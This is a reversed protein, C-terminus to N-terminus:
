VYKERGPMLYSINSIAFIVLYFYPTYIFIESIMMIMYVLVTVILLAAIKENKYNSLKPSNMNIFNVFVLMSIIGGDYLLQLWNNHAQWLGKVGGVYGWYVFNGDPALGHGFIPSQAIYKIAEGWILTRSSLNAEKRLVSVIFDDFYVYLNCFTFLLSIIVGFYVVWRLNIIKRFKNSRSVLFYTIIFIIVGLIATTVTFRVINLICIMFCIITKLQLKHNGLEERILAFLLLPFIVDSIRTRIGIFFIGDIVGNPYIYSIGLNILLM